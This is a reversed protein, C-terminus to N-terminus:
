DIGVASLKVQGCHRGVSRSLITVEKLAAHICNTIAEGSTRCVKM